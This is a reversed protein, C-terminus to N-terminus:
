LILDDLRKKSLNRLREIAFIHPNSCTVSAGFTFAAAYFRILANNTDASHAIEAYEGVFDNLVPPVDIANM